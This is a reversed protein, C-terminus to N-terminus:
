LAEHSFDIIGNHINIICYKGNMVAGPNFLKVDGETELFQSHTHGFLAVERGNDKADKYLMAVGFKVHQVYGHTIYFKVGDITEFTTIPHNSAFDCNGAVQIIRKGTMGPIEKLVQMDGEGDGLHIIVDADQHQSAITFLNEAHGHSDSLVLIKM